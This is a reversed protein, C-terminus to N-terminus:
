YKAIEALLAVPSIPKVLFGNMGAAKCARESKVDDEATLAIIPTQNGAARLEQTAEIGTLIPLGIDMLILDYAKNSGKTVASRGDEAIDLAHGARTLIATYLTVNAPTDEALLISKGESM